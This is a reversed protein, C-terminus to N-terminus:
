GPAEYLESTEGIKMALHTIIDPMWLAQGIKQCLPIMKQDITEKLKKDDTLMKVIELYAVTERWEPHMCAIKQMFTEKGEREKQEVKSKVVIAGLFTQWKLMDKDFVSM